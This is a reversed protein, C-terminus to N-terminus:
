DTLVSAPEGADFFRRATAASKKKPVKLLYVRHKVGDNKKTLHLFYSRAASKFNPVAANGQLRLQAM